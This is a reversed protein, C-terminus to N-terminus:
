LCERRSFLGLQTWCHGSVGSVTRGQSGRGESVMDTAGAEVPGPCGRGQWTGLGAARSLEARHEQHGVAGGTRGAHEAVHATEEAQFGQPNQPM